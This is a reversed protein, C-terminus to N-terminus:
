EWPLDSGSEQTTSQQPQTAPRTKREGAPVFDDVYVTHTNGWDDPKRMESVILNVYGKENPKLDTAKIGIKIDGFKGIVKGKGVYQREGM